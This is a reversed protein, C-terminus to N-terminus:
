EKFDWKSLQYRKMKECFNKYDIEAERAADVIKGRHKELMRTIYDREFRDVLDKKAKQFPVGDYVFYRFSTEDSPPLCRSVTNVQVTDTKELIVAREIVNELQRVNGPWTQKGLLHVAEADIGSIDKNFREAYRKIFHAALLPVDELRDRLPPVQIIMVNLRYYLDERFEGERVAKRLDKNTASIIRVDVKISANSGLREFSKEQLVRLLKAQTASSIDGIEDLFLTGGAAQEFRGIRARDAGTFAGKEHGFLESELLSDPLAACSVGVFPNDKLISNFHIARAVLEKGTGTEGQILVTADTDSLDRIISYIAQMAPSNGIINSFGYLTSIERRLRNLEDKLKRQEISRKLVLMLEDYNVPKTFYTEAGLQMVQVAHEISGHATIIITPIDLGQNRLAELFQIGNMRPMMYDAIIIDIRERKLVDFAAIGDMATHVRYGERSLNAEMVKLTAVEDDIVLITNKQKM